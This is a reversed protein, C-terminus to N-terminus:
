EAQSVLDPIEITPVGPIQRIAPGRQMGTRATKKGKINARKETKQTPTVDGDESDSPKQMEGWLM